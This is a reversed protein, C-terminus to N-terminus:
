NWLINYRIRQANTPALQKKKPKGSNKSKSSKTSKTSSKDQKNKSKKRASRSRRRSKSRNLEQRQTMEIRQAHEAIKRKRTNVWMENRKLFDVFSKKKKGSRSKRSRSSCSRNYSCNVSKNLNRNVSRNDLHSNQDDYRASPCCSSNNWESRQSKMIEIRRQKLKENRKQMWEMQDNYVKDNSRSRSRINKSSKSKKMKKTTQLSRAQESKAFVSRYHDATSYKESRADLNKKQIFYIEPKNAPM